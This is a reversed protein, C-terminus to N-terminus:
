HRCKCKDDDFFREYDDTDDGDVAVRIVCRDGLVQLDM